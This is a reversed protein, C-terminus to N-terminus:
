VAPDGPRAPRGSGQEDAAADDDGLVRYRMTVHTLGDVDRRGTEEFEGGSGAAEPPPTGLSERVRRLIGARVAPWDDRTTSPLIVDGLM